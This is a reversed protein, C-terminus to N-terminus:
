WDVPHYVEGARSSGMKDKGSCGQAEGEVVQDAGDSLWWSSHGSLHEKSLAVHTSVSTPPLETAGPARYFQGM